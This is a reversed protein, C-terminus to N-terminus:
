QYGLSNLDLGTLRSTIRNSETYRGANFAQVQERFGRLVSQDWNAPVLDAIAEKTRLAPQRTFRNCYLSHNTMVNRHTLHSLKRLHYNAWQHRRTNFHVSFREPPLLIEEGVFEGLQRLFELKDDRFMEYPLVLVREGGFLQQYASILLHYKVHNPSYEPRRGQDTVRLYRKLSLTGGAILYQQYNSLLWSNQERIVVLIKGRPFVTHLRKAIIAADYGASYPHGSLREHSLVPIRDEREDLQLGEIEKRIVAENLEFPSLPYGEKDVVFDWALSSDGRPARSLPVFVDNSAIFLEHQLWTTGTKHYGIHILPPRM